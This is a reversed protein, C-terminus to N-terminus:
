EGSVWEGSVVRREGGMWWEGGAATGELWCSCLRAVKEMEEIEDIKVKVKVMATMTSVTSDVVKSM